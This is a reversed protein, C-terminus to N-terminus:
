EERIIAATAAALGTHQGVARSELSAPIGRHYRTAWREIGEVLASPALFGIKVKESTYVRRPCLRQRQNKRFDAREAPPAAIMVLCVRQRLSPAAIDCKPVFRVDRDDRVVDAKPRVMESGLRVHASSRGMVDQM